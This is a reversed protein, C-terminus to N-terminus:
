FTCATLDKKTHIIACDARSVVKAGVSSAVGLPRMRSGARRVGAGGQTTETPLSTTAELLDAVAGGNAYALDGACRAFVNLIEKLPPRVLTWGQAEATTLDGRSVADAINAASKVRNFDPSWRMALAWFAALVGNVAMDKGYGKKLAAESASNDIWAIWLEPLQRAFTALAILQAVIDLVYIFARRAAFHRLFNLPITGHAFFVKTGIRLVFGWGNNWRDQALAPASADIHGAKHRLEGEKFFADAYLVAKVVKTHCFPIFRPEVNALLALLAQPASRLGASLSADDLAATDHSRAHVPSLAARGRVRFSVTVPLFAAGGTPPGRRAPLCQHDTLRNLRRATPAVAVGQPSLQFLVGLVHSPEPPQPKTEKTRLGIPPLRRRQLRRRLPGGRLTAGTAFTAPRGSGSQFELGLGSRWFVHRPPVMSYCWRVAPLLTACHSPHRVPWQRYANLMDHGYFRVEEQDNAMRRAIDVFNHTPVDTARVTSNHSPRRWDEGRRLKVDGHEDM